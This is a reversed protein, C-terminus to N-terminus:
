GAQGSLACLPAQDLPGSTPTADGGGAPGWGRPSPAPGAGGGAGAAMLPSGSGSVHCHEVITDEAVIVGSLALEAVDGEIGVRNLYSDEPGFCVRKESALRGM